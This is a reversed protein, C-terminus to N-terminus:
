SKNVVLALRRDDTAVRTIKGRLFAPITGIKKWGRDSGTRYVFIGDKRIQIIDGDPLVDFDESGEPIEGMTASRNNAMMYRKFFWKGYNGKRIFLLDGNPMRKMTRGVNTAISKKTKSSTNYIVIEHGSSEDVLFLAVENKNLWCHYGVNTIEPAVVEGQDSRDLPMLWLRQDNNEEVRVVSFHKKDPHLTPSYESLSSNTVRSKTNKSLNYSVIDTQNNGFSRTIYVENNIFHPQNNYGGRNEWTLLRPHYITLDNANEMRYSFLWVETNPLQATLTSITFLWFFFFLAPKM